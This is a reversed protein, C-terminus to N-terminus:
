GGAGNDDGAAVLHTPTGNVRLDAVPSHWRWAANAQSLASVLMLSAVMLVAIAKVM